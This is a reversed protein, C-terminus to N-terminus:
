RAALQPHEQGNIRVKAAMPAIIVNATAEDNKSM